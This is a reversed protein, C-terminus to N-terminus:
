RVSRTISVGIRKETATHEWRDAQTPRRYWALLGDALQKSLAEAKLLGADLLNHCGRCLGGIMRRHTRDGKPNGGSGRHKWLHAPDVKYRKSRFECRPNRCVGRGDRKLAAQMHMQEATVRAQRNKRHHLFGTFKPDKPKATGIPPQAYPNASM